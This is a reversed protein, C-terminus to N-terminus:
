CNSQGCDVITSYIYNWSASSSGANIVFDHDVTTTNNLCDVSTYRVTVTITSPANVTNGDADKVTVVTENGGLCTIPTQGLDNDEILIQTAAGVGTSTDSITVSASVAKGDLTMTMTETGEATFDNAITYQKTTTEGATFFGTLSAGSIDASNVGTITYYVMEGLSVNTTNLTFTVTSGENATPTNVSLNYIAEPSGGTGCTTKNSVIGNSQVTYKYTGDGYTGSALKSNIDQASYLVDNSLIAGSDNLKYVTIDAGASTCNADDSVPHLTYGTWSPSLSTDTIAVTVSRNLGNLSLVFNEQGETTQDAEIYFNKVATNGSITFNGTLTDSAGGLDGSTIGTVTYPINTGDAVNTTNLRITLNNGESITVIQESSANTAVLEYTPEAPSGTFSTDNVTVLGSSAVIPGSTSGTRVHFTFNEPGETTVDNSLTKTVSGQQGNVVFSGSLLGDNFDPGIVGGSITYYLTSAEIVNTTNITFTVSSGENVSNTSTSVSYGPTAGSGSGGGGTGTSGTCSISAQWNDSLTASGAHEANLTFFRGDGATRNFEITGNTATNLNAGWPGSTASIGKWGTTVLLNNNSDYVNIRNPVENSVWNVYITTATTGNLDILEKPYVYFQSSDNTRTVTSGCVLPNVKSATFTAPASFSTVSCSSEITGEINDCAPLGTLTIPSSTFSGTATTYTPTGVVRWKVRYGNAPAPIPPTFNLVLSRTIPCAM